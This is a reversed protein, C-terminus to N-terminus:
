ECALLMKRGVPLNAPAKQRFGTKQNQPNKSLLNQLGIAHYVNYCCSKADVQKFEFKTTYCQIHALFVTAEDYATLFGWNDGVMLQIGFSSVTIHPCIGGRRVCVCVVTHTFSVTQRSFSFSVPLSYPCLSVRRILSQNREDAEMFIVKTRRRLKYIM